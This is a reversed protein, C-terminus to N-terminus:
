NVVYRLKYENSFKGNNYAKCCKSCAYLLRSKRHQPTTTGCNDCVLTYKSAPRNVSNSFCREGNCGVQLAIDKWYAGHGTGSRGHIEFSFAHAIEHLITNRIVTHIKDLNESCLPLSLNIMRESYNCLGFARKRNNFAFSYGIQKATLKYTRGKAVITFETTMLQNVLERIENLTGM